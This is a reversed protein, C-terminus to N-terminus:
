QVIMAPPREDDSLRRAAPPLSTTKSRAAPAVPCVGNDVYHGATALLAEASDGLAHDFDDAVTCRPALGSWYRGEGSANLVEFNVASYTTGCQDDVPQFGVPKGCTTDGIQVVDVFPALGNIILESASCTRVGTLVFVRAAPMASPLNDFRFDINHGQQKDSYNLRAFIDGAFDAGGAYSALTLANAVRGGGNYRLDLVIENVGNAKFDAFATELPMLIQPIFDKIVLYGMPTGTPSNVIRSLSVPTLAFETAVLEVNREVGQMNRIVLNLVDGAASATLVTLLRNFDSIYDISPTGNISVVTDGRALGAQAAPSQVEVYRVRLPAAPQDVIELGAVSLGWGLTQGEGYFNQYAATTTTYSWIDGLPVSADGTFLLAYFYSPMDTFPAPDPSPISAYWFYQDQMYKLLEPKQDEIACSVAVPDDDRHCSALLAAAAAAMFATRVTGYKLSTGMM